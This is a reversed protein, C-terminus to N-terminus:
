LAGEFRLSYGGRSPRFGAAALAARATEDAPRVLLDARWRGDAALRIHVAEMGSPSALPLLLVAGDCRASGSAAGPVGPMA